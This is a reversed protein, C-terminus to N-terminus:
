EYHYRMKLVEVTVVDDDITYVMRHEDDIRRSWKGALDYKLQEPQGSGTRPDDALEHLLKSVKKFNHPQSHEFFIYDKKAKKTLVVRYIKLENM